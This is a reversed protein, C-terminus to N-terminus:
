IKNIHKTFCHSEYKMIFWFSVQLQLKTTIHAYPKLIVMYNTSVHLSIYYLIIYYLIIYYLIIYNTTDIVYIVIKYGTCCLSNYLIFFPPICLIFRRVSCLPNEDHRSCHYYQSLNKLASVNICCVMKINDEWRGRSRWLLRKGEDNGVLCKTWKRQKTYTSWVDGCWM